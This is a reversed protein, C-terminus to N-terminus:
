SSEPHLAFNEFSLPLDIRTVLIINKTAYKCTTGVHLQSFDNPEITQLGLISEARM